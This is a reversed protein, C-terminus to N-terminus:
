TQSTKVNQKARNMNLTKKVKPVIKAQATKEKLKKTQEKVWKTFLDPQQSQFKEEEKSDPKTERTTGNKVIECTM